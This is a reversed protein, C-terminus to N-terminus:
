RFTTSTACTCCNTRSPIRYKQFLWFPTTARNTTPRGMHPWTSSATIAQSPLSASKQQRRGTLVDGGMIKRARYVEEGTYPLSDLTKRVNSTYAYWNSLYTTDGSYYPAVALFQKSPTKHFKRERMEQLLTASYCYSIQHQNLVYPYNKFKALDAPAPKETLLVEFPVYGLVGEPAIILQETLLPAIPELLKQYLTAAKETYLQAMEGYLEDSREEVPTTHYRSLGERLGSVLSDLPFDLRTQTVVFTDPRIVFTFLSSDGVFYELLTQQPSLLTNQVFPLSVTTLDYKLRYYDPYTSEFLSKLANLKNSLDFIIASVSLYSSDTETGGKEKLEFLQKQRWNYLIRYEMEQEIMSDPIGAFHLAEDERILNRFQDGKSDELLRILRENKSRGALTDTNLFTSEIAKDYLSNSKEAVVDKYVALSLQSRIEDIGEMAKKIYYEGQILDETLHLQKFKLLYVRTLGNLADFYNDIDNLEELNFDEGNCAKLALKFQDIANNLMGNGIYYKALNIYIIAVDQNIDGYIDLKMDRSKILSKFSNITDGSQQYIYALSNFVQAVEPHNEGYAELYIELGKNLYTLASDLHIEKAGYINGMSMYSEALDPDNPELNNKRIEFAKKFYKFGADFDEKEFYISGLNQYLIAFNLDNEDFLKQWIGLAKMYYLSANNLDKIEAYLNGLNLFSVAVTHHESGYYQQRIALSKKHFEMSRKFDGIRKYANALNNYYWNFDVPRLEPVMEMQFIARQYSEIAKQFDGLDYYLIGLYNLSEGIDKNLKVKERLQQALEYYRIAENFNGLKKYCNGLHNCSWAIDLTDPESQIQRIRLAELHAKIAEKASGTQYYSIGLNNLTNWIRTTKDLIKLRIDAAKQTFILASKYDVLQLAIIGRINWIIGAQKSNIGWAEEIVEVASSSLSDAKKYAGADTLRRVEVLLENAQTTDIVADANFNEQSFSHHPLLFGLVYLATFCIRYM